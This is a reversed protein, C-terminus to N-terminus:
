RASARDGFDHGYRDNLQKFHDIDVLLCALEHRDGGGERWLLDLIGMAERRNALGTLPDTRALEDLKRNLAMLELNAARISRNQLALDEELQIIRM